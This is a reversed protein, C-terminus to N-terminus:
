PDIERALDELLGPDASEPAYSHRSRVITAADRRGAEYARAILARTAPKAGYADLDPQMVEWADGRKKTPDREDSM